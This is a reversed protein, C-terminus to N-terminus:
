GEGRSVAIPHSAKNAEIKRWVPDHKGHFLTRSALIVQKGDYKYEEVLRMGGNGQVDYSVIIRVDDSEDPIVVHGTYIPQVGKANPKPALIMHGDERSFGIATGKSGTHIKYLWLNLEPLGEAQIIMHPSTIKFTGEWSDVSESMPNGHAIVGLCVGTVITIIRKMKM